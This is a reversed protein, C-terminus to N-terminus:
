INKELKEIIKELESVTGSIKLEVYEFTDKRSEIEFKGYINKLLSAERHPIKVIKSQYDKKILLKIYELLEDIMIYEKASILIAETYKKKLYAIKERDQIRDIKNFVLLTEKNEIKM